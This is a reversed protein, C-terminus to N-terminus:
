RKLFKSFYKEGNGTQAEIFYLGPTLGTVSISNGSRYSETTVINGSLDTIQVMRVPLNTKLQLYDDAPNPYVLFKTTSTGEHIGAPSDLFKCVQYDFPSNYSANFYLAGGYPVFGQFYYFDVGYEGTVPCMKTGAKTGDSSWVVGDEMVLTNNLVKLFQPSYVSDTIRSTGETTGDSAWLQTYHLSDYASMYLKNKYVTLWTPQFGRIGNVLSHDAKILTTGALTGDTAWLQYFAATDAASFFLKGNYPTFGVPNFGDLGPNIATLRITGSPTGDSTWIQRGTVGDDASFYLKNNFETFNGPSASGYPFAAGTANIKKLMRTGSATGDSIWLQSYSTSDFAGFYLNNNLVFLNFPAGSGTSNTTRLLKTGATTGDTVWLQYSPTSQVTDCGSFYLKGNYEVPNSNLRVGAFPQTGGATGDSSWLKMSYGDWFILKGNYVVFYGLSTSWGTSNEENIRKISVTGAETGDSVCLTNHYAGEFTASFYLKGNFPTISRPDLGLSGYYNIQTVREVHQAFIMGDCIISIFLFIWIKKM